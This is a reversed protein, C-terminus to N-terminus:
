IHNGQFLEHSPLDIAKGSPSQLLANFFGVSMWM